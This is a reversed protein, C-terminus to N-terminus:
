ITDKKSTLLHHMRWAIVLAAYCAAACAMVLLPTLLDPHIASRVFPVLSAPQHLTHWWDVSFKVIPVNILGAIALWSARRAALEDSAFGHLLAYHGMYFFFLILASTLRADWVWYTGWTPKGWLSGTILTILAFAAGVPSAARAFIHALPLRSALFIISAGGILSYILLAMWASPVHIYMIRVLSGQQYDPPSSWLAMWAGVCWLVLTVILLPTAGYRYWRLFTAPRFLSHFFSSVTM